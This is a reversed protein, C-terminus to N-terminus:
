RYVADARLVSYGENNLTEVFDRVTTEAFQRGDVHLQVTLNGGSKAGTGRGAGLAQVVANAIDAKMQGFQPSDGLPVVAEPYRGEGVLAVTPDSVVGGTAMAPLLAKVLLGGAIAAAVTIAGYIPNTLIAQAALLPNLIALKVAQKEMSKTVKDMGTAVKSMFVSMLVLVAGFAVFAAVFGASIVGSLSQMNTVFTALQENLSEMAISMVLLSAALLVFLVIGGVNETILALNEIFVPLFAILAAMGETMLTLGTGINVLGQGALALGEGLLALVALTAIFVILEPIFETIGSMNAAMTLFAAGLAPLLPVLMGVGTAASIIGNGFAQVSTLVGALSDLMGGVSGAATAVGNGFDLAAAGMQSFGSGIASASTAIGNGFETAAAGMQSFSDSVSSVSSAVGSGVQSMQDGIDDPVAVEVNTVIAANGTLKASSKSFNTVSTNATQVSKQFDSFAKQLATIKQIFSDFNSAKMADELRKFSDIAGSMDLKSLDVNINQISTKIENEVNKTTRTITQSQDIFTNAM